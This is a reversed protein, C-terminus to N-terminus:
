VAGAFNVPQETGGLPRLGAEDRGCFVDDSHGSCLSGRDLNELDFDTPAVRRCECLHEAADNTRSLRHWSIPFGGERVLGGSAQDVRERVAPSLASRALRTLPGSRTRPLRDTEHVSQLAPPRRQAKARESQQRDIPRRRDAACQRARDARTEADGFADPEVDGARQGINRFGPDRLDNGAHPVIEAPDRGFIRMQASDADEVGAPADLRVAKLVNIPGDGRPAPHDDKGPMDGIPFDAHEGRDLVPSLNRLDVAGGVIWQDVSHDRPKAANAAFQDGFAGYGGPASNRHQPATRM